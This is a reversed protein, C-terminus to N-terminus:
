PLAIGHSLRENVEPLALAIERVRELERKGVAPLRAHTATPSSYGTWGHPHSKAVGRDKSRVATRPVALLSVEVMAHNILANGNEVRVRLFLRDSVWDPSM